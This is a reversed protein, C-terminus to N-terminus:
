YPVKHAKLIEQEECYRLVSTVHNARVKDSGINVTGSLFIPEAPIVVNKKFWDKDRANQDKELRKQAASAHISALREEM